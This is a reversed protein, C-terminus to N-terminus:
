NIFFELLFVFSALLEGLILLYFAAQLHGITLPVKENVHKDEYGMSQLESLWRKMLGIENLRLLFSNFKDKFPHGRLLVYQLFITSSEKLKAIMPKGNEDLYYKKMFFKVPIEGRTTASDRSFATRNLCFENTKCFVLRDGLTENFYVQFTQLSPNLSIFLDSELLEDITSIQHEYFPKMLTSILQSQYATFLLVSACSWIVLVFRLLKSRPESPSMQM